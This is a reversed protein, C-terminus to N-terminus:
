PSTIRTMAEKVLNLIDQDNNKQPLKDLHPLLNKDGSNGAAVLTNRLFVPWKARRVPTGRFYNKYDKEDWSLATKLDLTNSIAPNWEQDKESKEKIVKDARINFPCVAQCIDCGFILNGIKEKMTKEVPITKKEITIYSICNKADLHYPTICQTPCAEICRTCTGCHDLTEHDKELDLNIAIGAIFFYSGLGPNIMMTNKGIWGIGSLKAYSRELIPNADVFIKGQTKPELLQIDKITKKLRKYIIKHYDKYTAYSAIVGQSGQDKPSGWFIPKTPNKRHLDNDKGENMDKDEQNHGLTQAPNNRAEEIHEVKTNNSEKPPFIEKNDLGDWIKGMGDNRPGALPPATAIEYLIGKHSQKVVSAIVFSPSTTLSGLAPQTTQDPDPQKSIQLNLTPGKYFMAAVIISQVEPYWEQASVRKPNELYGMEGHHGSQLWEKWFDVDQPHPDGPAIGVLSFGNNKVAAKIKQTLEWRAEPVEPGRLETQPTTRDLDM